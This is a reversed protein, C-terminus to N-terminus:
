ANVKMGGWAVDGMARRIEVRIRQTKKGREIRVRKLVGKASEDLCYQSPFFFFIFIISKFFSEECKGYGLCQVLGLPPLLSIYARQKSFSHDGVFSSSWFAESLPCFFEPLEKPNWSFFFFAPIRYTFTKWWPDVTSLKGGMRVHICLACVCINHLSSISEADGLPLEKNIAERSPGLCLFHLFPFCPSIFGLLVISLHMSLIIYCAFCGSPHKKCPEMKSMPPNMVPIADRPLRICMKRRLLSHPSTLDFFM